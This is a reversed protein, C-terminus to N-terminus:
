FQIAKCLPTPTPFVLDGVKKLPGLKATIDSISAAILETLM